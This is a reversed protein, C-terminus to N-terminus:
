KFYLLPFLFFFLQVLKNLFSFYGVNQWWSLQAVKDKQNLLKELLVVDVNEITTEVDYLVKCFSKLFFETM